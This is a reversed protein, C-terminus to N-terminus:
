STSFLFNFTLWIIMPMIFLSIIPCPSISTILLFISMLVLWPSVITIVISIISTIFFILSILYSSFFSASAISLVILSSIVSTVSTTISSITTVSLLTTIIIPSVSLISFWSSMVIEFILWSSFFTKTDLVIISLDITAHFVVPLSHCTWSSIILIPALIKLSLIFFDITTTFLFIKPLTHRSHTAFFSAGHYGIPSSFVFPLNSSAFSHYTVLQNLIVLM